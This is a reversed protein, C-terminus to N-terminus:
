LVELKGEEEEQPIIAMFEELEGIKADILDYQAKINQSQQILQQQQRKYNDIENRIQEKTLIEETTRTVVVAAGVSKRVQQDLIKVNM